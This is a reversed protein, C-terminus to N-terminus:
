DADDLDEMCWECVYRGDDLETFEVSMSDYIEGCVDCIEMEELCDRCVGGFGPIMCLDTDSESCRECTGHDDARFTLFEHEIM